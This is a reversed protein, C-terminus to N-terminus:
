RRDGKPGTTDVGEAAAVARPSKEMRDLGEEVFARILESTSPVKAFVESRRARQLRAFTEQTLTTTFQM